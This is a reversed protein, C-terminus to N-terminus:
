QLICIIYAIPSYAHRDFLAIESKRSHLMNYWIEMLMIPPDFM